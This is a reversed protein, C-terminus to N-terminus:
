TFFWILKWMQVTQDSDESHELQTYLSWPKEKRLTFVPWVPCIGLSIQTKAPHVDNQQDQRATVWITFSFVDVCIFKKEIEPQGTSVDRTRNVTGGQILQQWCSWFYSVLIHSSSQDLTYTPTIVSSCAKGWFRKIVFHAAEHCFRCFPM